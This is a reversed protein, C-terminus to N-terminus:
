DYLTSRYGEELKKFRTQCEKLAEIPEVTYRLDQDPGPEFDPDPNAKVAQHGELNDM